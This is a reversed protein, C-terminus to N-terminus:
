DLETRNRGGAKARYLAADARALTAAVPEGTRHEAVGASFTVALPGSQTAFSEQQVRARFRDMCIRAGDLTTHPLVLLFEEGGYRGFTTDAQQRGLWDMKRACARMREAFGRLVDDGTPHGYSDNIRKFHDLDIIALSFTHGFRDAREKEKDLM